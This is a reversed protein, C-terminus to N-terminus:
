ISSFQFVSYRTSQLYIKIYLYLSHFSHVFEVNEETRYKLCYYHYNVIHRRVKSHMWCHIYYILRISAFVVFRMYVNKYIGFVIIQVIIDHFLFSHSSIIRMIFGITRMSHIPWIQCGDRRRIFIFIFTKPPQQLASHISRPIHIHTVIIFLLMQFLYIQKVWKHLWASIQIHDCLRQAKLKPSM